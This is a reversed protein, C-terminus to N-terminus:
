LAGSAAVPPASEPSLVLATGAPPTDSDSATLENAPELSLALALALALELALELLGFPSGAAPAVLLAGSWGAATVTASAAELEGLEFPSLSVLAGAAVIGAVLGSALALLLLLPGAAAAASLAALVAVLLLGLRGSNAERWRLEDSKPLRRVPPM